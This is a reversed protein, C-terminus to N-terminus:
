AGQTAAPKTTSDIYAIITPIALELVDAVEDYARSGLGIPDLVDAGIGEGPVDVFECALYFKDRHEPFMSELAHLHSRTMAFVHTAKGLLEKGVRRSAFGPLAAGRKKLVALTERSAPTGRSASVGASSVEFDSRGAVAQRFLGEAM